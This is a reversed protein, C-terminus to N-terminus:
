DRKEKKKQKERRKRWGNKNDKKGDTKIIKEDPKRHKEKEM